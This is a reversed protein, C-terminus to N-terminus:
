PDPLPHIFNDGVWTFGAFVHKPLNLLIADFKSTMESDLEIISKDMWSIEIDERDKLLNLPEMGFGLNM